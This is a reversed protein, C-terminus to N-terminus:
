GNSKEVFELVMPGIIKDLHELAGQVTEPAIPYLQSEFDRSSRALEVNLAHDITFGLLKVQSVFGRRTKEHDSTDSVKELAAICVYVKHEVAAKALRNVDEVYQKYSM